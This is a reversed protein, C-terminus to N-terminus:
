FGDEELSSGNLHLLWASMLGFTNQLVQFGLGQYLGEIGEEQIISRLCHWSSTYNTQIPIRPNTISPLQSAIMRNRVVEFPLTVLLSSNIFLLESGVLLTQVFASSTDLAFRTVLWELFFAPVIKSVEQLLKSVGTLVPTPFLGNIGFATRTAKLADFIGNLRKEGYLFSQGLLHLKAVEFPSLCFGCASDLASFALSVSFSDVGRNSIFKTGFPTM